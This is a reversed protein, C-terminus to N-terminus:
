RATEVDGITTVYQVNYTLRAVGVPNETDGDFDIETAVLITEKSVGGLDRNAAIAEEIEVCIADVDDDFTDNMSVYIDVSMSLERMITRQGMTMLNSAESATYVLVCPLKAQSLPHVRSAYVRRQVLPVGSTLTAKVADRIQKRVHAM